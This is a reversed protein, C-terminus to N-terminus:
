GCVEDIPQLNLAAIADAPPLSLATAVTQQILEYDPFPYGDGIWEAVYSKSTGAFEPADFIFRISVINELDAVRLLDLFNPFDSVPIDTVLSDAIAPVITPLENILRVPDAQQALAELMCRQRGMRNYDDTQERSRAYALATHGDMEQVGVPIDIVEWTGDEHPYNSDYVAETVNITIGGLADIIDVFGVLDVLAFYQIDIGLLHGITEKMAVGGPNDSGPFLARHNEEFAWGYLLNLLAPYCHCDYADYAPLTEPFLVNIDNRPVSLMATWGTSPDISVVIMTDTRIGQRDVGSDGGMLLVNIRDLGEFPDPGPATTSTAETVVSSPPAITSGTPDTTSSGGVGEQRTDRSLDYTLGEYSVLIRHGAYGHPYLVLLLLFVLGIAFVATMRTDRSGARAAVYYSDVVTFARFVLLLANPILLAILLWPKEFFPRILSIKGGLDTFLVVFALLVLLPVVILATIKVYRWGRAREGAYVHGAGPFVLSLLAAILPNPGPGGAPDRDPRVRDRFTM